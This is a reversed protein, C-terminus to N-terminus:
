NKKILSSSSGAVRGQKLIEFLIRTNSQAQRLSSRSEKDLGSDKIIEKLDEKVIMWNEDAEESISSSPVDIVNSSLICTFVGNNMYGIEARYKRGPHPVKVYWNNILGKVDTNFYYRDGSKDLEYVRLVLPGYIRRSIEWYAFMCSPDRPMIVLTEDNYKAPIAPGMDIFVKKQVPQEPPKKVPSTAKRDKNNLGSIIKKKATKKSSKKILARIKEEQAESLNSIAYKKRMGLKKAAHLIYSVSVKFKEAILYVRM